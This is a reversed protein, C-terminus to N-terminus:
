INILSENELCSLAILEVLSTAIFTVSLTHVPSFLANFTIDCHLCCKELEQVIIIEMLARSIYYM